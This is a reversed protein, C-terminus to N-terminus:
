STGTVLERTLGGNRHPQALGPSWSSIARSTHGAQLRFLRVVGRDVRLAVRRDSDVGREQEARFRLAQDGRESDQAAVEAALAVAVSRRALSAAPEAREKRPHPAPAVREVDVESTVLENQSKVSTFGGSAMACAGAVLGAWESLIVRHRVVGCGGLAGLTSVNTVPGDV